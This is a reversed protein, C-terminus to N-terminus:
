NVGPREVPTRPPNLRDAPGGGIAPDLQGRLCPAASRADRSMRFERDDGCDVIRRLEQRVAQVGDKLLVILIELQYRDVVSRGVAAQEV